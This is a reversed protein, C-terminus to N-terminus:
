DDQWSSLFRNSINNKCLSPVILLYGLPFYKLLTFPYFPWDHPKGRELNKNLKQINIRFYIEVIGRSCMWSM